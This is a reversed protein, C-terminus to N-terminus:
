GMSPVCDGARSGSAAGPPEGSFAASVYGAHLQGSRTARVPGPEASVPGSSASHGGEKAGVLNATPNPGFSFLGVGALALQYSTAPSEGRPGQPGHPDGAGRRWGPARRRPM